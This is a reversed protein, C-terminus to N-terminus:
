GLGLGFVLGIAISIGIFLGMVMLGVAVNGKGLEDSINFKCMRNFMTCSMKMFILTMIGGLIVYLFKALIFPTMEVM